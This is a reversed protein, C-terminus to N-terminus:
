AENTHRMSPRRSSRAGYRRTPRSRHGEDILQKIRLDGRLDLAGAKRITTVGAALYLMAFSEQSPYVRNSAVQYFLHDHMGVFGPLVTRALFQRVDTGGCSSSAILLLATAILRSTTRYGRSVLQM